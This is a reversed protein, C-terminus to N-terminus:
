KFCDFYRDGDLFTITTPRVEEITGDEFEVIAYTIIVKEMEFGSPAIGTKEFQATIYKAKEYSIYSNCKLKLLFDEKDVWRHFMGKRGNVFCPRLTTVDKM